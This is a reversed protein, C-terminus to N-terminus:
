GKQKEPFKAHKTKKFGGNQFEGKQKIVKSNNTHCEFASAYKPGYCVSIVSTERFYNVALYREIKVFLKMVSIQFPGLYAKSFLLYIWLVAFAFNSYVECETLGKRKDIDLALSDKSKKPPKDGTVATM